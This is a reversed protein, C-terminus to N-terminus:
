HKQNNETLTKYGHYLDLIRKDMQLTTAIVVNAENVFQAVLEMYSIIEDDYKHKEEMIGTAAALLNLKNKYGQLMEITKMTYNRGKILSATRIGQM